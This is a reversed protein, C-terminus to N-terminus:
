FDGANSSSQNQHDAVESLPEADMDFVFWRQRQNGKLRHGERRFLYNNEECWRLWRRPQIGALQPLNSSRIMAETTYLYTPGYPEITTGFQGASIEHEDREAYGLVRRARKSDDSEPFRDPHVLFWRYLMMLARENPTDGDARDPTILKYCWQLLDRINDSQWGFIGAQNALSLATAIVALNDCIRGVERNDSWQGTTDLWDRYVEWVEKQLTPQLLFNIWDQGVVGYLNHALYDMAKAHKADRTLDGPRTPIDLFRVGHGGQYYDGMYQYLSIEGTSIATLRWSRQKAPESRSTAKLRGQTSNLGYVVKSLKDRDSGFRKLEDLVLCAGNATEAAIELGTGTADWSQFTYKPNGWISGALRACTSKGHTTDGCIHITFPTLDLLDILPGALSQGLCLVSGYTNILSDARKRWETFSGARTSRRKIEVSNHDVEWGRAGHIEKGNVYVRNGDQDRHWGPTSVLQISLGNGTHQWFGLASAFTNETDPRIQVGKEGAEACATQGRSKNVFASAAMNRYEVHGTTSHFRYVVGTEGTEVRRYNKLPWINRGFTFPKEETGDETKKITVVRCVEGFHYRRNAFQIIVNATELLEKFDVIAHENIEYVVASFDRRFKAIGPVRIVRSINQTAMDRKLGAIEEEPVDAWRNIISCMASELADHYMRFVAESSAREKAVFYLHAKVRDTDNEDKNWTSIVWARPIIGRKKLAFVLRSMLELSAVHEGDGDIDVCFIQMASPHGAWSMAKEKTWGGFHSRRGPNRPDPKSHVNAGQWPVAPAWGLSQTNQIIAAWTVAQRNLGFAKLFADVQSVTGSWGNAPGNATMADLAGTLYDAVSRFGSQRKALQCGSQRIQETDNWLNYHAAIREAAEKFYRQDHEYGHCLSQMVLDICTGGIDRKHDQYSGDKYFQLYTASTSDRFAWRGPTPNKVQKHIIGLASAVEFSDLRRIAQINPTRM